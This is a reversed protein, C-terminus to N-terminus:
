RPCGFTWSPWMRAAVPSLKRRRPSHDSPMDRCFGGREGNARRQAAGTAAQASAFIVMINALVYMVSAVGVVVAATHGQLTAVLTGDASWERIWPGEHRTPCRFEDRVTHRGTVLLCGDRPRRPRRPGHSPRQQDAAIGPAHWGGAHCAGTHDRNGASRAIGSVPRRGPGVTRAHADGGDPHPEGPFDGAPGGADRRMRRAADGPRVLLLVEQGMGAVHGDELEAAAGDRCGDALM